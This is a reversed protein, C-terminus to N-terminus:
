VWFSPNPYKLWSVWKTPCMWRQKWGIHVTVVLLVGDELRCQIVHGCAPQMAQTFCEKIHAAGIAACDNVTGYHNANGWCGDYIFQERSTSNFFYPIWATSPGTEAPLTCQLDVTACNIVILKTLQSVKAHERAVWNTWLILTGLAVEM